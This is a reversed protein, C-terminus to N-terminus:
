PKAPLVALPGTFSICRTKLPDCPWRVGETRVWRVNLPTTSTLGLRQLQPWLAFCHHAGTADASMFARIAGGNFLSVHKADDATIAIEVTSGAYAPEVDVQLCVGPWDDAAAAATTTALRVSVCPVVVDGRRCVDGNPGRRRLG